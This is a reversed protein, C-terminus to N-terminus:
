STMSVHAASGPWESAAPSQEVQQSGYECVPLHPSNLQATTVETTPVPTSIQTGM